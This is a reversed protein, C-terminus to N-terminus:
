GQLTSTGVSTLQDLTLPELDFLFLGSIDGKVQDMTQMLMLM